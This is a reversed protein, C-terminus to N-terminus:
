ALPLQPIAFTLPRGLRSGQDRAMSGCEDMSVRQTKGTSPRTTQSPTPHSIAPAYLSGECSRYECCTTQEPIAAGDCIQKNCIQGSATQCPQLVGTGKKKTSARTLLHKRYCAHQKEGTAPSIAGFRSNHSHRSAYKSRLAQVIFDPLSSAPHCDASQTM